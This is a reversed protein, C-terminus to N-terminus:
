RPSDAGRLAPSATTSCLNFGSLLEQEPSFHLGPACHSRARGRASSLMAIIGSIDKHLARIPSGCPLLQLRTPHPFSLFGQQASLETGPVPVLIAHPHQATPAPPGLPNLCEDWVCVGKSQSQPHVPGLDVWPAAGIWHGGPGRTGDDGTGHRSSHWEWCCLGGLATQTGIWAGTQPGVAGGPSEGSAPVIWVACGWPIPHSRSGDGWPVGQVAGGQFRSGPVQSLVWRRPCTCACLPARVCCMVTCVRTHACVPACMCVNTCRM